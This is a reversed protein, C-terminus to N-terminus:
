MPAEMCVTLSKIFTVMLLFNGFLYSIYDCPVGFLIATTSMGTMLLLYLIQFVKSTGVDHMDTHSKGETPTVTNNTIFGVLGNTLTQVLNDDAMAFNFLIFVLLLIKLWIVM